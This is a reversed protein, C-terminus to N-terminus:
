WCPTPVMQASRVDLANGSFPSLNTGSAPKSAWRPACPPVASSHLHHAISSLLAPISNMRCSKLVLLKIAVSKSSTRINSTLPRCKRCCDSPAPRCTENGYTPMGNSFSISFSMLGQIHKNGIILIVLMFGPRLDPAGESAMAPVTLSAPGGGRYGQCILM